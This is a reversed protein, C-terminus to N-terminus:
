YITESEANLRLFRQRADIRRRWEDAESPSMSGWREFVGVLWFGDRIEDPTMLGVIRHM